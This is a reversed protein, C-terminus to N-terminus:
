TQEPREEFAALFTLVLHAALRATRCDVDRAPCLEMVDFHRVRPDRGAAEAVRIATAPPLGDVNVASVGPAAISDIGDLDISVFAGSRGVVARELVSAAGEEGAARARDIPVISAGREALWEHHAGVATFRGIGFEAFGDAALWGGEILRRFPMGSGVTERVDLHADLNVGGVPEGLRESLARVTPLTLDHGGGIALVVKGADHLARATERVRRHTEDLAREADGDLEDPSAPRVNGADAVTEGFHRGTEADYGVGYRALADRIAAPGEAAGPRGGNLRVGLDDPLGLLAVRASELGHERLLVAVRDSPTADPWAPPITHPLNM